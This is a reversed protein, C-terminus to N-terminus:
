EARLVDMPRVRAVRWAPLLCAVGAVVMKSGFSFAVGMHETYSEGVSEPHETFLRM